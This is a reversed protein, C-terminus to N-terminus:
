CHYADSLYMAVYRLHLYLRQYYFTGVNLKGFFPFYLPYIDSLVQRQGYLFVFFTINANFCAAMFVLYASGLCKRVMPSIFDQFLKEDQKAEEM